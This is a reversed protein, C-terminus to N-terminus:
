KLEREVSVAEGDTEVTEDPLHIAARIGAPIGFRVTVSSGNSQLYGQIMGQPTPVKMEASELVNLLPNLEIERERESDDAGM